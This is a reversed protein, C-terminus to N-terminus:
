HIKNKDVPIGAEQLEQALIYRWEGSEVYAIGSIDSPMEIDGLKLVAINSKGLKAYLFGHEFVVNQRARWNYKGKKQSDKAKDCPTYLIIAFGVDSYMDLKEILTMGKNAEQNLIVPTLGLQRLLNEVKILLLEDHGHVVFVKNKDM